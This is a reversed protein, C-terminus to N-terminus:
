KEKVIYDCQISHSQFTLDITPLYASNADVAEQTDSNGM